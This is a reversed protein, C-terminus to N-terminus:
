RYFPALDPSGDCREFRNVGPLIRITWRDVEGLELRPLVDQLVSEPIAWVHVLDNDPQWATMLYVAPRNGAIDRFHEVFQPRLNTWLDSRVANRVNVFGGSWRITTRELTEPVDGSQALRECLFETICRAANRTKDEDVPVFPLTTVPSTVAALVKQSFQQESMEGVIKHESMTLLDRETTM